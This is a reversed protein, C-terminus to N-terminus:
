FASKKIQTALNIDLHADLVRRKHFSALYVLCKIEFKQKLVHFFFAPDVSGNRIRKSFM